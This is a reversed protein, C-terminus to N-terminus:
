EVLRLVIATGLVVAGGALLALPAVGASGLPEGYVAPCLGHDQWECEDLLLAGVGASLAALGLGALTWFLPGHMVGRRSSAPTALAAVGGLTLGGGGTVLLAAPVGTARADDARADRAISTQQDLAADADERAGQVLVLGTALTAAGVGLTAWAAWDSAWSAGAPGERAGGSGSGAAGAQAARLATVASTADAGTGRGQRHGDEARLSELTLRGDGREVLVVTHVALQRGLEAAARRAHPGAVIWPVPDTRLALDAEVDFRLSVPGAALRIQRVRTLRGECRLQLSYGGPYLTKRELPSVGVPQGNLLVACHVPTTELTLRAKPSRELRAHTEDFFRVVEPSFQALMPRRDPFTRIVQEVVERATDHRADRRLLVALIMQSEFLAAAAAEERGVLDIAAQLAQGARTLREMAQPFRNAYFDQMGEQVLRQLEEFSATSRETGPASVTALIAARLPAGSLAGGGLGAAVGDVARADIPPRFTPAVEIVIVDSGLAPRAVTLCLGLLAAIGVRMAAMPYWM